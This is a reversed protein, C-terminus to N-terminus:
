PYLVGYLNILTGALFCVAGVVFLLNSVIAPTVIGEPRLRWGQFPADAPCHGVSRPM